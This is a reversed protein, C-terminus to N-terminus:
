RRIIMVADLMENLNEDEIWCEGDRHVYFRFTSSPASEDDSDPDFSVTSYGSYPPLAGGEDVTLVVDIPLTTLTEAEALVRRALLIGQAVCWTDWRTSRASDWFDKL